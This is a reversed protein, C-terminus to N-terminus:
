LIEPHVHLPKPRTVDSRPQATLSSKRNRSEFHPIMFTPMLAPPVLMNSEQVTQRRRQSPVITPETM